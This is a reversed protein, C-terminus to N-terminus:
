PFIRRCERVVKNVTAAAPKRGRYDRERYWAVFRRADLPTVKSVIKGAGLHEELFRLTREQECMTTPALDGRLEVYMRAFKTLTVESPEDAKGVRVAAQRTEAYKNAEKWSKVSRSYRKGDSGFWRVAWRFPRKKPWLEMPLKKGNKDKPVKGHYKRYIGVKEIAM